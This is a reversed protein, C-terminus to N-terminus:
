PVDMARLVHPLEDFRRIVADPAVDHSVPRGYPNFWVGRMGANQAGAVDVSLWDGVMVAEQPAVGATRLAHQFIRADPKSYGHAESPIFLEPRSHAALRPAEYKRRQIDTAGNTIVCRTASRWCRM